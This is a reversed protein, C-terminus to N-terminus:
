RIVTLDFFETYPKGTEQDQYKVMGVYVGQNVQKGDHKGDWSENPDNTVFVLNGWSDYIQMSFDNIGISYMSYLDNVGDNNPSFINPAFFLVVNEVCITQVLTDSCGL